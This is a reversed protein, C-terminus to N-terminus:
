EARGPLNFRSGRRAADVMLDAVSEIQDLLDFDIAEITLKGAEIKSFDLIDNIITLLSESSQRITRTMEKQDIALNTDDLIRAMTVVGNIPTRIEHSMTALFSAKARTAAEAMDRAKKLEQNEVETLKIRAREWTILVILGVVAILTGILSFLLQRVAVERVEAVNKQETKEQELILLSFENIFPAIEQLKEIIKLIESQDLAAINPM